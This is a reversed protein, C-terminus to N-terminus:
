SAMTIILADKKHSTGNHTRKTRLFLKFITTSFCHFKQVGSNREMLNRAFDPTMGTRYHSPSIFPFLEAIGTEGGFRDWAAWGFECRWLFFLQYIKKKLPRDGLSIAGFQPSGGANGFKDFIFKAHDIMLVM